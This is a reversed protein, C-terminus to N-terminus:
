SKLFMEFDTTNKRVTLTDEFGILLLRKEHFIVEKAITIIKSLYQVENKSIFDEEGHIKLYCRM